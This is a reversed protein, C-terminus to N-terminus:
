VFKPRILYLFRQWISWDSVFFLINQLRATERRSGKLTNDYDSISGILPGLIETAQKSFGINFQQGDPLIYKRVKITEIEIKNTSPYFPGAPDTPDNYHPIKFQDLSDPCNITDLKRVIIM